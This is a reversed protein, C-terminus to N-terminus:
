YNFNIIKRSKILQIKNFLIEKDLCSQKIRPDGSVVTFIKYTKGGFRVTNLRSYYYMKLMITIQTFCKQAICYQPM